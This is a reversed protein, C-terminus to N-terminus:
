KKEGSQPLLDKPLFERQFNPQSMLRLRIAPPWPLILTEATSKYLLPALGERSWDPSKRGQVWRIGWVDDWPRRPLFRPPEM